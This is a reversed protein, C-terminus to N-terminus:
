ERGFQSIRVSGDPFRAVIDLEGGLARIYSHLTSVYTDRRQELKSVESQSTQMALALTDQTVRRARRLENLPMAEILEAARKRSRTRAKAPMKARLSSFKKTMGKKGSHMCVTRRDTPIRGDLPWTRRTFRTRSTSRNGHATMTWATTGTLLVLTSRWDDPIYLVCLEHGQHPVRLQRLQPYRSGATRISYPPGLSPGHSELVRIMGDISVREDEILTDWWQEFEHTVEVTWAMRATTHDRCCIRDVAYHEWAAPGRARPPFRVSYTGAKLGM